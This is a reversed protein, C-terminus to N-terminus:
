QYIVFSSHDVSYISAALTMPWQCGVALILRVIDTSCGIALISSLMDTSLFTQSARSPRSDSWVAASSSTM